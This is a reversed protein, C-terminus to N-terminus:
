SRCGPLDRGLRRHRGRDHGGGDVAAAAHRQAVGREPHRRRQAASEGRLGRGHSRRPASRWCRRRALAERASHPFRTTMADMLAAESGSLGYLGGGPHHGQPGPSHAHVAGHLDGRPRARGVGPVADKDKEGIVLKVPFRGPPTPITTRPLNGSADLQGLGQAWLVSDVHAKIIHGPHTELAIEAENGPEVQHLENQAYLAYIQYQYEVFTMVENLPMGTVFAGPRLQVNVALGDAPARTVTQQLEWKANDLKARTTELQAESVGLQARATAVQAKVAAVSALDGASKGPWSM